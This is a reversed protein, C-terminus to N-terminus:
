CGGTDAAISVTVSARMAIAMARSPPMPMMWLFMGCSPLRSLDVLDLPRSFPMMTSGILRGGSSVTPVARSSMASYWMEPTGTM